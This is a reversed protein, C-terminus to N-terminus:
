MVVIRVIEAAESVKDIEWTSPDESLSGDDTIHFINHNDPMVEIVGFEPFPRVYLEPYLKKLEGVTTGLQVGTHFHKYSPSEIRIRNLVLSKEFDAELALEGDPLIVRRVLWSVEEPGTEGEVMETFVTDKVMTAGEVEIERWAITDGLQVFDLGFSGYTSAPLEAPDSPIPLITDKALENGDNGSDGTSTCGWFISLFAAAVLLFSTTTKMYSINKVGLPPGPWLYLGDEM